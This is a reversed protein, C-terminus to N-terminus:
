KPCTPRNCQVRPISKFKKLAGSSISTMRCATRTANANTDVGAHCSKRPCGDHALQPRSALEESHYSPFLAISAYMRAAVETSNWTTPVHAIDGFPEPHPTTSGSKWTFPHWAQTDNITVFFLWENRRCM